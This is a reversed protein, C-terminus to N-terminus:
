AHAVFRAGTSADVTYTSTHTHTNPLSDKETHTCNYVEGAGRKRMWWGSAGYAIMKERVVNQRGATQKAAVRMLFGM